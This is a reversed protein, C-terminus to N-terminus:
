QRSSCGKDNVAEQTEAELIQSTLAGDHSLNPSLGDPLPTGSLRWGSQTVLWSPCLRLIQVRNAPGAADVAGAAQAAQGVGDPEQAETLLHPGPQHGVAPHPPCTRHVSPSGERQQARKHGLGCQLEAHHFGDHSDGGDDQLGQPFVMIPVEPLAAPPRSPLVWVWM